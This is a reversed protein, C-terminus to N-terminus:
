GGMAVELTLAVVTLPLPDTQRVFLQGNDQWQPTLMIKIDQTKLSPPSGYPETTRQKAEVLQDASPGAFIGSSELVRLWVHNLNKVRGQGMAEIQLAMPLTNLDSNYPLGVHVVSAARDLTVAGSSVTKQPHVAGDALINVTKGELWSIGSIVNRAVEYTTIGTNRLSAPLDKDIKATAVTQSSTALITLRYLDTGDVLVIADDKDAVSPPANFLNYNATVTLNEGKTYNTGGSITVTQSGNTNTGNYTAGSDVFFNDRQTAFLRTGMREIYRVVDGDVTRKIVCYTVDDNGESVCAVSEFTGDTDHQHWAGLAQEPVYTLGLLKGSSSVAWVIPIPAKSLAMDKITFNDFLHPARLSLDGTVFGNAQWNYGLERIHGGRAAGYVLSNNVIVPQSNDSGVYSQPKVSISTPTIADSNVSTVRWEASGTMLLLQTLPVIHRITNAERAAVRFEIRDDDRIPLGFSMNSETGSKTMWMNQPANNTGAFVRRQEFYSVAGPYNNSGIFDNEHIPPTQSFDPGINDDIISTTTTEGIYGFIGGQDKYVRYRAAGTVSNWSITNKAGTVFINNSVTATSSQNSEDVLSAKVATVVYNHDQYTDANTSSSSPIYASVSVGTPAALPTGFDIVKLEWKTAGLRRLERPAHSPHVLTMVDASQVYHVDFLEAELYPHPVEYTYNAPLAYWNTGNPPQSNSHATKAYYNTGSHKAIDGVTYNTSNSWASGDSYLLTQGQTHFRFYQDGMEIVMTQVTNFTFSLLRTAKASNKVANVYAFGPRNQAPGQPKAIFNLMTAAGQQFKNDAIRGFMEPSVEGGSFAQKFTRTVPM